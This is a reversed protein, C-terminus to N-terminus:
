GCMAAVAGRLLAPQRQAELAFDARAGVHYMSTAGALIAEFAAVVTTDFQSEVAQALRLRAVQVPMADRYPRGSTMANYADAVALIRSLLPIQDGVLRDPYGNGDVREHHHRVIRAVESYDEVNSLIREGIVSHEEMQRREELTLPGSKELIGVPLGVKGIDHLLGCLHALEQERPSLQMRTAIDRAYVAVAASHGATYTDRADLASVLASAFSLSARELHKNASALGDALERQQQYLAFLRQAALTPAFFLLVTWPSLERYTYTLGAVVAIFLPASAFQVRALTRAVEFANGSQRLRVPFAAFITDFGQAAFGAVTTAAAISGFENTSVGGAYAAVLGALGGNLARSATYVAWKTYPARFDGAMSAAAVVMAAVPGFAVAAFLTPLLSISIELNRSLRVSQREAIAGFVALPAVTWLPGLSDKSTVLLVVLAADALVLALLYGLVPSGVAAERLFKEIRASVEQFIGWFPSVKALGDNGQLPTELAQM